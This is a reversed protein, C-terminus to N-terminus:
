WLLLSGERRSPEPTPTRTPRPTATITPTPTVTPTLTPTFTFTPTATNRTPLPGDYWIAARVRWVGHRHQSWVALPGGSPRASVGGHLGNGVAPGQSLLERPQWGVGPPRRLLYVQNNDMLVLYVTGDAGEAVQSRHGTGAPQPMTWNQGPARAAHYTTLVGTPGGSFWTAHVAGTWGRTLSSIQANHGAPAIWVTEVAGFGGGAQWRAAKVRYDGPREIWLAQLVGGGDEATDPYGWGDLVSGALAAPTQWGAGDYRAYGLKEHGEGADRQMWVCVAEAAGHASLTPRRARVTTTSVVTPPGWAAGDKVRAVVEFEDDGGRDRYWVAIVRGAGTVAVDGAYDGVDPNLSLNVPETWDDNVYSAYYFDYRAGAAPRAHWVVHFVGLADYTTHFPELNDIVGPAHPLDELLWAAAAASALTILVALISSQMIM